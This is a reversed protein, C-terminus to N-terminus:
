IFNTTSYTHSHVLSPIIVFYYSHAAFALHLQFYRGLYLITPNTFNMLFVKFHVLSLPIDETDAIVINPVRSQFLWIHLM